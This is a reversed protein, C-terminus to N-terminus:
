RYPCALILDIVDLCPHHLFRVHVADWAWNTCRWDPDSNDINVKRLEVHVDAETKDNPLRGLLAVSVLNHTRVRTETREFKWKVKSQASGTPRNVAHYRVTQMKTADPKRPALLIATHYKVENEPASLRAYLAM